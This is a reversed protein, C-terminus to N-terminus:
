KGLVERAALPPLGVPGGEPGDRSEPLFFFAAALLVYVMLLMAGELWNSEGDEAVMRAILVALIVAVIEMTTFLLDMPHGRLYSAFVLAPAVFLAVQLASGIAIGVALDMKNKLAVMVASSHEAANGVIAVVVVGLFVKTLGWTHGTEEITGALVESVLAVFVTAGLLVLVSRGVSWAAGDDHEASSQGGPNYLNKHTILSFLLSLGYTLMLAVSVALSLEHEIDIRARGLHRVEPLAHFIAPVLLGMAALAMMTGGVGAATRNFRQVNHRLGGALLAAGLVLLINGLISGTISAKVVADEGRFLLALAIILEAANGFTANLLGGIGPGARHALHETAEGMLAALPLLALLAAVFQWGAPAGFAWRLALAVPVFVLLTRLGWRRPDLWGPIGGGPRAGPGEAATPPPGAAQNVSPDDV